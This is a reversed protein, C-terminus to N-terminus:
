AMAVSAVMTRGHSRSIRTSPSNLGFGNYAAASRPQNAPRNLLKRKLLLVAAYRQQRALEKGLITKRTDVILM